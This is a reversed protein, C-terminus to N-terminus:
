PQPLDLYLREVNAFLQYCPAWEVRPPVLLAPRTYFRMQCFPNRSCEQLFKSPAGVAMEQRVLLVWLHWRTRHDECGRCSKKAHRGYDVNTLSLGFRPVLPSCVAMRAIATPSGVDLHQISTILIGNSHINPPPRV